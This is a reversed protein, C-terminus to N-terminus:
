RLTRSANSRRLWFYAPLGAAVIIVGIASEKPASLFSDAVILSSIIFVLITTYPHGPIRYGHSRDSRDRRRLIFIAVASLALFLFDFWTVYRLIQDYRGSAAIICAIIGQVIIANIPARSNSQVRALPSFFVGNEAMAHYVRPSTLIQNSLFGLTSVAVIMAMITGGTPGVMSKLVDAAPSVSYALGALGLSAICALNFLVYLVVTISVGVVLGMPLVRTSDRIEGSVYSSDQWGSYTFLVPILALGFMDLMSPQPGTIKLAPALSASGPRLAFVCGIAVIACVAMIKAAVLANQVNSGQRVGLCNVLTLSVIAGVALLSAAPHGPVFPLVYAAFTLAAAAMGGSHSALLNTWGYVFGIVPHFAEHLYAYMGGDRNNRSALEALVFAGFVSIMGGLIWAAVIFGLNPLYRAIMAPTMFIGSGIMAGMVILTVDILGLRRALKFQM